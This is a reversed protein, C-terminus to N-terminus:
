SMTCGRGTESPASAARPSTAGAGLARPSSPPPPPTFMRMSPPMSENLMGYASRCCPSPGGERCAAESCGATASACRGFVTDQYGTSVLKRTGDSLYRLEYRKQSIEARLDKEEMEDLLDPRVVVIKEFDSELRAEAQAQRRSAFKTRMEEKKQEAKKRAAQHQVARESEVQELFKVEEETRDYLEKALIKEYTMVEVKETPSTPIQEGKLEAKAEAEEEELDWGEEPHLERPKKGTSLGVVSARHGGLGLGSRRDKKVVSVPPRVQSGQEGGADTDEAAADDKPTEPGWSDPESTPEEWWNGHKLRLRKLDQTGEDDEHEVTMPDWADVERRLPNGAGWGGFKSQLNLAALDVELEEEFLVSEEHDSEGEEEKHEVKLAAADTDENFFSMDSTLAHSAALGDDDDGDEDEDDSATEPVYYLTLGFDVPMHIHGGQNEFFLEVAFGDDTPIELDYAYLVGADEYGKTIVEEPPWPSRNLEGTAFLQVRGRDGGIDVSIKMRPPKGKEDIFSLYRLQLSAASIIIGKPLSPGPSIHNACTTTVHAPGTHIDRYVRFRAGSGPIRQGKELYPLLQKPCSNVDENKMQDSHVHIHSGRVFFSKDLHFTIPCPRVLYGYFSAKRLAIGYVGGFNGFFGLRVYRMPANCIIRAECSADSEVRHTAVETFTSDKRASASVVIRQPNDLTAWLSILIENVYYHDCKTNDAMDDGGVRFEMEVRTNGMFSCYGANFMGVKASLLNTPDMGRRCAPMKGHITIETIRREETHRGSKRREGYEQFWKHDLSAKISTRLNPKHALYYRLLDVATKSVHSCILDYEPPNHIVRDILAIREGGFPLHGFLLEFLVCGVSWVDAKTSWQSNAIAEPARTFMDGALTLDNVFGRRSAKMVCWGETLKPEFVNPKPDEEDDTLPLMIQDLRIDRHILRRSHYYQVAEILKSFIRCVDHEDLHKQNTEVYNLLSGGPIWETVEVYWEANEYAAYIDAIGDHHFPARVIGIRSLVRRVKKLIESHGQVVERRLTHVARRLPMQLMNGRSKDRVKVAVTRRHIDQAEFVYGHHSEHALRTFHFWELVAKPLGTSRHVWRMREYINNVTDDHTDWYAMKMQRYMFTFKRIKKRELLDQWRKTQDENFQDRKNRLILQRTKREPRVPEESLIKV